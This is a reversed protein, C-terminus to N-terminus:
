YDQPDMDQYRQSLMEYPGTLLVYAPVIALAVGLVSVAPMSFVYTTSPAIHEVALAGYSWIGWAITGIAGTVMAIGDANGVTRVLETQTIGAGVTALIALLGIVLWATAPIARATTGSSESEFYLEHESNAVQLSLSTGSGTTKNAVLVGTENYIKYRTETQLGYATLTTNTGDPGAYIIDANGDNPQIDQFRIESINAGVTIKPKDAPNLTLNHQSADIATANTWTGTINTAHITAHASGPATATLNGATTNLQVTTADPFPNDLEATTSGTLTITVNDASGITVGDSVPVGAAAVTGISVAVMVVVLIRKM